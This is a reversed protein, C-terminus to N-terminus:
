YSKETVKRILFDVKSEFNDSQFLLPNGYECIMDIGVEDAKKKIAKVHYGHHNRDSQSQPKGNSAGTSSAWIEPDDATLKSLMDVNERYLIVEESDIDMYSISGYVNKNNSYNSLDALDDIDMDFEDFVVSSWLVFDYTAQVGTLAIGKVRTSERLVPDFNNIDKMDDNVALWLSTGAGASGGMLVIDEKKLNFTDSHYRIYQLARKSDNLCKLIGDEDNKTLLRYNISAFAINESLLRKILKQNGNTNYFDSKNGSTFGGGHIYIVLGTPTESKPLFIDFKTEKFEDYSINEAFKTDYNGLDFPATSFTLNEASNEGIKSEGTCASISFMLVFVMLNIIVRKM